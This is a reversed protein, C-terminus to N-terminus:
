YAKILLLLILKHVGAQSVMVKTLTALARSIMTGLSVRDPQPKYKLVVKFYYGSQLHISIEQRLEHAKIIENFSKKWYEKKMKINDAYQM